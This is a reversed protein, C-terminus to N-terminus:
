LPKRGNSSLPPLGAFDRLSNLYDKWQDDIQRKVSYTSYTGAGRYMDGAQRAVLEAVEQFTGFPDQNADIRNAVLEAFTGFAETHLSAIWLNRHYCGLTHVTTGPRSLFHEPDWVVRGRRNAYLVHGKGHKRTPLWNDSLKKSKVSKDWRTLAQLAQHIEGGEPIPAAPALDKAEDVTAHAVTLVSFPENSHRICLTPPQALVELQLADLLNTALSSLKLFKDGEDMWRVEFSRKDRIEYALDVVNQLTFDGVCRITVAAAIGFPYYYTEVDAKLVQKDGYITVNPRRRLPIVENWATNGQLNSQNDSLYHTWFSRGPKWPLTLGEPLAEGAQLDTISQAFSTARGLFQFPLDPKAATMLDPCAQAWIFTLRFDKIKLM